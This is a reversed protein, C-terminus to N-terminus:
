YLLLEPEELLEKVKQLFVAGVAGDIIRHDFSGTINMVDRVRLENEVVFPKKSIAGVALICSEPQNIIATFRDIGIMGLNSITLTGGQLDSEKVQNNKVNEINRINASSIESLTKKNVHSVVPVIIGTETAVALGINVNKFVKVREEEFRANILPSFQISRAVVKMLIDNFSIKPEEPKKKNNLKNRLLITATMDVDVSIVYHPATLVSEKMRRAITRRIPAIEIYYHDVDPSANNSSSRRQELFRNVDAKKILKGSIFRSVDELDINELRALNKALPSALIKKANGNSAAPLAMASINDMEAGVKKNEVVPKGDKVTASVNEEQLDGDKGILAVVEGVKVMMGEAYRIELLKGEAFSEVTLIAKDTEIEFLIDGRSIPDGVKKNWKLITMEDTTQGGSPM